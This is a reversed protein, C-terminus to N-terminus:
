EGSISRIYAKAADISDYKGAGRLPQGVEFVEFTADSNMIIDHGWCSVDKHKQQGVHKLKLRHLVEDVEIDEGMVEVVRVFEEETKLGLLRAGALGENM